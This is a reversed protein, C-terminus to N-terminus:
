FPEHDFFLRCTTVNGHNDRTVFTQGPPSTIKARLVEDEVRCSSRQPRFSECYRSRLNSADAWGNGRMDRNVFTQGPPPTIKVEASPGGSSYNSTGPRRQQARHPRRKEPFTKPLSHGFHSVISSTQFRSPWFKIRVAQNGFSPRFSALFAVCQMINPRFWLKVFMCIITKWLPAQNM